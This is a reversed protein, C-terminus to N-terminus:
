SALAGLEALAKLLRAIDDRQTYLHCSVRILRRGQFPVIPAEIGYQEALASQLPECEGPPLPV